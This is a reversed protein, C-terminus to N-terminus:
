EYNWLSLEAEWTMAGDLPIGGRINTVVVSIPSGGAISLQAVKPPHQNVYGIVYSFDDADIIEIKMQLNGCVPLTSAWEHTWGTILETQMDISWDVDRSGKLERGDFVISQQRGLRFKPM